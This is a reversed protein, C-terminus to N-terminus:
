HRTQFELHADLLTSSFGWLWTLVSFLFYVCNEWQLMVQSKKMVNIFHIIEFVINLIFSLSITVQLEFWFKPYMCGFPLFLLCQYSSLQSCTFELSSLTKYYRDFTIYQKRKYKLSTYIFVQSGSHVM